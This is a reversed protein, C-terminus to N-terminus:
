NLYRKLILFLFDKLATVRLSCSNAPKLMQLAVYYDKLITHRSAIYSFPTPPRKPFTEERKFPFMGQKPHQGIFIHYTAAWSLFGLFSSLQQSLVRVGQTALNFLWFSVKGGSEDHLSIFGYWKVNQCSFFDLKYLLGSHINSSSQVAKISSSSVHRRTLLFYPFVMNKEIFIRYVTM